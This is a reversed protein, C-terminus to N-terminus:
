LIGDPAIPAFFWVYEKGMELEPADDPLTLELIGGQASIKFTKQYHHNRNADQLSFFRSCSRPV